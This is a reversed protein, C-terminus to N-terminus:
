NSNENPVLIDVAGIKDVVTYRSNIYEQIRPMYEVLNRGSVEASSDRLIVKPNETKIGDLIKDEAIRMFWDFHFVFVNGAPRTNTLYYIHPTTAMAFIPENPLAYKRVSKSLTMEHDTFFYVKNGFVFRLSSFVVILSIALYVFIIKKVLILNFTYVLLMLAFPLAPQLHVYDFRAYAFFLSGIMFVFVLFIEKGLKNRFCLVFPAFFAFGFIMLSKIFEGPSPYKRGLEAFVTLNFIVTWYWFDQWVEIHIFYLCMLFGPLFAGLSFWFVDKKENSTKLLYLWILIVLPAVVQKFVIAIGLVLGALFYFIKNRANVLLLFSLLFLPVVFSDIWLVYGEFFPQWILYLLNVFFVKKVSVFIKKGILYILVHNFFVLLIQLFRYDEVTDFGITAFNVPFFFLGPFHQDMIQVYPLLGIKTLYTYIFIEPYPFFNLNLLLFAHILFIFFLFFYFFLDNRKM